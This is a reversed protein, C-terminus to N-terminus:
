LIWFFSLIDEKNWFLSQNKFIYLIDRKKKNERLKMPFYAYATYINLLTLNEILFVM